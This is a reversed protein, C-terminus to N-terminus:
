AARHQGPDFDPLSADRPSLVSPRFPWDIAFGPDDWRVARERVPDYAATVLYLLLTADTLTLFGHACGEPVVVVRRNGPTLEIAAHQGYTPSAPRLDLVVDHLAGQLCTVVKAEASPALQYHLGRLTGAQASFSLNAQEIGPDVGLAALEARCFCRAFSGRADARAETQLVLMGPLPRSILRM